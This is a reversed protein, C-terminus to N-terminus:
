GNHENNKAGAKVKDALVRLANGLEEDDGFASLARTIKQERSNTSVYADIRFFEEAERTTVSDAAGNQIKSFAETSLMRARENRQWQRDRASVPQRSLDMDKLNASAKKAFTLGAETLQWDEKGVQLVYAGNKPKKADWLSWRVNGLNIQDRHKRWTFRAPAIENARIAVDETDVPKKDGGLLYVALAVVEHNSLGSESTATRGKM